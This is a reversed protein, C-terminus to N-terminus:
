NDNDVRRFEELLHDIKKVVSALGATQSCLYYDTSIEGKGHEKKLYSYPAIIDKEVLYRAVDFYIKETGARFCMCYKCGVWHTPNGGNDVTQIPELAGGCGECVGKIKERCQEETIQM